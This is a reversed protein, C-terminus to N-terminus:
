APLRETVHERWADGTLERDPVEVDDWQEILFHITEDYGESGSLAKAWRLRERTREDVNVQTKGM